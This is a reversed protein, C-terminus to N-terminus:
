EEKIWELFKTQSVGLLEAAVRSSFEGAKYDSKVAEFEAPKEILPRGFRVGRKKAEVIGKAQRELLRTRYNQAEFSLFYLAIDAIMKGMLDGSYRARTDLLPMDLVVIDVHKEKTLIRWQETNEEYDRGLRDVSNIFVVDGSNLRRFLKKYKPRNFDKGSQKDIFINKREVGAALLATIQRDIHQEKTSTRAYGYLM